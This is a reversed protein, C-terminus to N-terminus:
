RQRLKDLKGVRREVEGLAIAAILYDIVSINEIQHDAVGSFLSFVLHLQSIAEQCKSHQRQESGGRRLIIRWRIVHRFDRGQVRHLLRRGLEVTEDWEIQLEADSHNTLELNIQLCGISNLM